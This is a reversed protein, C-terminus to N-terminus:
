IDASKKKVPNDILNPLGAIKRLANAGTDVKFDLLRVKPSDFGRVGFVLNAFGDEDLKVIAARRM